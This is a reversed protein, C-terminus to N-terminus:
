PHPHDHENEEVFLHASFSEANFVREGMDPDNRVRLVTSMAVDGATLVVRYTDPEALGGRRFRQNRQGTPPERRLDWVVRHLGPRGASEPLELVRVVKDSVDRIELRVDTARRLSFFIHAERPPNEGAFWRSAGRGREPEIRWLIVDNPRYLQVPAATADATMQRLPTVDLAWLSRGHTAVIIEGSSPHQAVDHVAVTPLDSNFKTWTKGRDISVYLFFETGLYLLNENFLDERLVRTSGAPLNARLSTWSKGADESVFVYPDDDNAYHGDLVVYVRDRAFRSWEISQVRRPGPILDGLKPGTAQAADGEQRAARWEATFQGEGATFNGVLADGERKAAFDVRGQAGEISFRFIGGTEAPALTRSTGRLMGSDVQVSITKDDVDSIHIAFPPGGQRRGQIAGQWTGVLDPHFVPQAPEPKGESPQATPAPTTPEPPQPPTSPTPPQVGEGSPEAGQEGGPREGRSPRTGGPGTLEGTARLYERWKEIEAANLAGDKDEDFVPMSERTREPAEAFQLRGDGNADFRALMDFRRGGAPGGRAGGPRQMQPNDAEGVSASTDEVKEPYASPDFPFVINEWNVGMDRSVWLSGDDSGVMLLDPDLPSEHFATASGRRTRTIEPSIQEINEGKHLSRFVHNGAAYFIRSNHSSLQFPTKWNFRYEVGRPARPRIGGREGTRLNISGMVGEQSEYYIQDPDEPDVACIFGDGGGIRFWDTNYSGEYTRMRNPGGWSGNDQLGGYVNYLPRNDVAVHYFQGIAFDNLHDFTKGRDYSVYLGGDNGLILHNGDRPDIWMAHHDVHVIDPTGDRTWTLGNDESRCLPIGLVWMFKDDSPDVYVKSFYMPRPNISNIRRWTKGLDDSRFLGGTEHGDPGQQHQVNERQGGIDREFPKRNPNPNEGLTVDVELVKGERVVVLPVVTGAERVRTAALLDDYRVVREGAIGIVIDNEKLGAKGAPGDEVIQTLRAGADADNGNVGLYGANPLGEGIRVTDVLLYVAGPNARSFEISMRGMDVTPLGETVETWSQGNDESRYLGSGPGWRKAPDNGDFEDRQREWAAALVVNPDAPDFAMDIIGTKDDIFLTRTWTKGADTTRYLGREENPGWLRGLAGVLVIDANQPHILIKGIQFSGRLGMNEWSHGGDTSKYVGDGWSVSNRPNHEGTGVWVIDPSTAAVAVDGISVTSQRDFQHEFTTGNNVTKLLGGSATAVYFINPNPEYVALDVIRGGMNAPGILRWDFSTVWDPNLSPQVEQASALGALLVALGISPAAILRHM